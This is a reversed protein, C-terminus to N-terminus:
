AIKIGLGTVQDDFKRFVPDPFPTKLPEYFNVDSELELLPRHYKLLRRVSKWFSCGEMFCAPEEAQVASFFSSSPCEM